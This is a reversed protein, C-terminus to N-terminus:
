AWTLSETLKGPMAKESQAVFDPPLEDISRLKVSENRWLMAGPRGRMKLWSQWETQSTWSYTSPIMTLKDNAVDEIRCVWADLTMETKHFGTSGEKWRTFAHRHIFAHEGLFRWDLLVPRGFVTSEMTFNASVQPGDVTMVTGGIGGRFTPVPLTEGTYPNRFETLYANTEPDKYFMWNRSRDEVAGDARQRSMKVAVGDTRYMLRGYEALPPGEGPVLGFVRGTSFSWITRGSLDGQLRGLTRVNFAPDRVPLASALRELERLRRPTPSAAHAPQLLADAAGAAALAGGALALSALADRRTAQHLEDKGSASM